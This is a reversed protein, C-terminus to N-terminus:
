DPEKLENKILQLVRQSEELCKSQEIIYWNRLGKTNSLASYFYHDKLLLKYDVPILLGENSRDYFHHRIHELFNQNTTKFSDLIERMSPYTTEFINVIENKLEDSQIIDFGVNKLEEYGAQSVFNIPLDVRANHFHRGYSEKYQLKMDLALLITDASNNYRRFDLIYAELLNCNRELTSLVEILVKKEKIRAKREENWNNISLAILIGIVVLFIEGIAYKFYKSFKNETLLQQRIKRFFNIM